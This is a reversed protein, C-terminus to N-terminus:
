PIRRSTLLRRWPPFDSNRLFSFPGNRVTGCQASIRLDHILIEHLGFIGRLLTSVQEQAKTSPALVSSPAGPRVLLLLSAVLFLPPSAAGSRGAIFPVGSTQCSLRSGSCPGVKVIINESIVVSLPKPEM